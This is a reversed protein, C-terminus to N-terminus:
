YPLYSFPKAISRPDTYLLSHPKVEMSSFEKVILISQDRTWKRYTSYQHQLTSISRPDAAVDYYELNSRNCSTQLELGCAVPLLGCAALWLGCATIKNKKPHAGGVLEERCAVAMGLRRGLTYSLIPYTLIIIKNKKYKKRTKNGM